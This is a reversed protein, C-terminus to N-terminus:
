LLIRIAPWSVACMTWRPCMMTSTGSSRYSRLGVQSLFVSNGHCGLRSRLSVKPKPAGVVCAELRINEGLSVQKDYFLKKFEPPQGSTKIHTTEVTKITTGSRESNGGDSSSSSQNVTLRGYSKAEGENNAASAM